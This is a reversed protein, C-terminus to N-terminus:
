EARMVEAPDIRTARRAPIYSAVAATLLMTAVVAGLTAPDTPELGFLMGELFRSLALATVLGIAAGVAALILGERVVMRRVGGASAGIAMRVGIERNRQAVEYALVGFLGVAALVVAFLGLASVLVALFRPIQITEAYAAEALVIERIPQDPALDHVAARVAPFLRAPDSAARFAVTVYGSATTPDFPSLLEFDGSRKDREELQLDAVVGVVTLWPDGESIRFRRGLPDGDPWLHRALDEDIIAVDDAEGAAPRFPRGALLRAGVVDFFDPSVEAMPLMPPDGGAPPQGEAQLAIGFALVSSPLGGTATAAVVGPVARIREELAPLFSSRLAPDPQSQATLPLQLLALNDTRVGIDVATLRIFSNLLLGAGTLLIVSLAVEAVVMGRRLRSRAATHAAYPSLGARSAADAPRTSSLAPLLGLFLGAGVSMAFAFALARKEVAVAHPLWFVLSDPLLGQIGRLSVWAIGVAVAGSLLALGLTETMLQRTIRGRSAGLARRVGLERARGASRVLLLNSGNVAAVLLILGVAGFLLWVARRLDDNGGRQEELPMLTITASDLRPRGEFLGAALVNARAAAREFAGDAVRAVVEVNGGAAEGSLALPVWFDTHSYVPFKFGRPMVGVITHAVGDLVVQRGLTAADGGFVSRWFPESVLAVPESGPVADEAVLGRGAVPYVGLVEEFSPAVRHAVVDQPEAGGTFLASRRQHPLMGAFADDRELWERVVDPPLFPRGFDSGPQQVRVHVLAAPDAYPLPRLLLADVVAFVAVTAGIGLGLTTVLGASFSANRIIGRTGYRVDQRTTELWIALRRRQDSRRDAAQLERKVAAVDGFQRRAEKLAAARSLGEAELEDAREEIHHEIEWEVGDDPEPGWLGLHFLRRIGRRPGRM